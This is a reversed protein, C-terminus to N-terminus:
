NLKSKRDIELIEILTDKSKQSIEKVKYCDDILRIGRQLESKMALLFNREQPNFVITIKNQEILEILSIAKDFLAKDVKFIELDLSLVDSSYNQIMTKTEAIKPPTLVFRKQIVNEKFNDLMMLNQEMSYLHKAIQENVYNEERTEQYLEKFLVMWDNPNPNTQINSVRHLLSKMLDLDDM